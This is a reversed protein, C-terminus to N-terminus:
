KPSRPRIDRPANLFQNVLEAVRAVQAQSLFQHIPLTLIRAAQLETVPMSGNPFGLNRSAPQLHIPIPYHIGTEIGFEKLYERLEDRHDVQIVFTHYSNFESADQKPVFVIESNLLQAYQEANRQRQSIVWDLETTRFSLIAAQLADMRSVYGFREIVYKNISGDSHQTFGHTRMARVALAISDDDTVLFGGDGCGNLNKLPHTSFCGVRGWKGSPVGKYKSGIAQAGDELLPISYHDAISKIEDMRAMRGTLHVPMIARTKSTIAAEIRSPDINQDPLVDVFVPQAGIHVIAATSAVFSNPPTIVEDGRKVGLAVLGCVLADTGSNLAVCHKTQCLRAAHGEFTEVEQGGIYKGSELVREIIPLLAERERSWQAVLFVYPVRTLMSNNM